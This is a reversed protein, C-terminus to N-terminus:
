RGYYYYMKVQGKLTEYRYEEEPPLLLIDKRSGSLPVSFPCVLDYTRIGSRLNNKLQRRAQLM